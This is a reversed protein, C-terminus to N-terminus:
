KGTWNAKRKELFASVGEEKDHSSFLLYFNKREYELGDDLALEYVKLVAEKALSAALPSMSAVKEALQIAKELYLEVPAVQNVLGFQYAEQATIKRDALIMEMALAKGVARALRQTGGAGPILGLNIEPQGFKASESAVIMDCIMALECGGGLCWGSVAAIIPKPYKRIFEYQHFRYATLMDITTKNQFEAIDAGAAFARENGTIVVARADADGQFQTLADVVDNMTAHSLANMVKPRNFQILGVGNPKKEVLINEM